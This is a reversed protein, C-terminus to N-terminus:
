ALEYALHLLGAVSLSDTIENNLVMEVAQKLPLKRVTIDETAELNQEGAYLDQAVFIEGYEDTVSNSQHLSRLLRWKRARLGTEEELERQAAVLLEEGEPAGGEPIEWTYCDLTYRSQRVLWTNGEVDLPIIGVAKNKFHVRGYIGKTQGPTIVEEHTVCIWPNDYRQESSLCQWGGAGPKALRSIEGKDDESM